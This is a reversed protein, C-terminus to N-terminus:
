SRLYAASNCCLVAHVAFGVNFAKGSTDAGQPKLLVDIPHYRAVSHSM